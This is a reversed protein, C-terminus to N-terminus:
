LPNSVGKKVKVWRKEGIISRLHGLTLYKLSIKQLNKATSGFLLFVAEFPKASGDSATKSIYYNAYKEM